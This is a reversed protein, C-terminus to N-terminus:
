ESVESLLDHKKGYRRTGHIKDHCPECLFLFKDVEMPETTHHRLKAIEGCFECVNGELPYKQRTKSRVLSDHKRKGIKDFINNTRKRYERSYNNFYEQHEDYYKVRVKERQEISRKLYDKIKEPNNKRWEKM